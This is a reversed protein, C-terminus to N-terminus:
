KSIMGNKIQSISTQGESWKFVNQRIAFVLQKNDRNSYVVVNDLTMQDDSFFPNGIAKKLDSAASEINGQGMMLKAPKEENSYLIGLVKDPV